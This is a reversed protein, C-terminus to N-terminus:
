VLYPDDDRMPVHEPVGTVLRHRRQDWMEIWTTHRLAWDTAATRGRRDIGHLAVGTDCLQPVHQRLGFQQLVRDPRHWEVVESCILPVVSFWVESDQLLMPNACLIRASYPQWVFQDTQMRDLEDRFFYPCSFPERITFTAGGM